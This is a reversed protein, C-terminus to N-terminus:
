SLVRRSGRYAKQWYPDTLNQVEVGNNTASIFQKDGIYIGVHSAGPGNTSSFVLDGPQLKSLPIGVGQKFQDYSTRPLNVGIEAYVNQVFASCDVGARSEGGWLYPTGEWTFAVQIVKQRLSEETTAEASSDSATIQENTTSRAGSENKILSDDKISSEDKILSREKTLSREKILSKEEILSEHKTLSEDKIPNVNTSLIQKKSAREVVTARKNTQIIKSQIQKDMLLDLSSIDLSLSDLAVGVFKQSNSSQQLGRVETIYNPSKILSNSTMVVAQKTGMVPDMELPTAAIGALALVALGIAHREVPQGVPLAVQM